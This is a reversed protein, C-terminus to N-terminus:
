SARAASSRGGDYVFRYSRGDRAGRASFYGRSDTRVRRVTTWGGGGGRQISVTHAGGERVQGWFRSGSIVFPHPFTRYAPKKRRNAFLLGSQFERYRTPGPEDYVEGDTLRFQNIERVRPQRWALYAAAQLYRSQRSLPIGAFPDPPNTQYGFETYYVSLRGGGSKRIAGRATLRDLTRLLRRTDGIAADDPAPSRRTPPFFLAYPHHGIADTPVPEFNSCRGSRIPRFRRDVCAMARLFALPRIARASGTGVRGTSALEGIMVVSDPDADKIRQYSAHVMSRYHHPAYLGRGDSQPMLWGPQNPENSIGYHDVWDAYREAVAQAFLGFQHASPKRLGPRDLARGAAWSPAPTTISVMVDLDQEAAIGVVRDLVGWNYSPDEHNSPDFGSPQRRSTAAPALDRWFASVRVRDVGLENFLRMQRNLKSESAGLLLQDDMISVELNRAACASSPVSLALAALGCALAAPRVLSDLLPAIM